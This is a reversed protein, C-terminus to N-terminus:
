GDLRRGPKLSDPTPSGRGQTRKDLAGTAADFLVVRPKSVVARAIMRRQRQGGSLTSGGESLVTQMGMPMQKIDEALGSLRAAEWADELTLLSSGSINSFLDGAM